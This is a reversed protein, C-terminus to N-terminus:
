YEPKELNEEDNSTEENAIETITIDLTTTNTEDAYCYTISNEQDEIIEFLIYEEPM